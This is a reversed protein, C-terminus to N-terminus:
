NLNLTAFQDRCSFREWLEKLDPHPLFGRNLRKIRSLETCIAHSARSLSTDVAQPSGAADNYDRILRSVAQAMNNRLQVLVNENIVSHVFQLSPPDSTGMETNRISSLLAHLPIITYTVATAEEVCDDMQQPSLTAGKQNSETVKEILYVLPATYEVYAMAIAKILGKM